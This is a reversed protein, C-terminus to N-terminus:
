GEGRLPDRLVLVMAMDEMMSERADNSVVLVPRVVEVLPVNREFSAEEFELVEVARFVHSNM